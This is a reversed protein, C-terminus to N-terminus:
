KGFARPNGPGGEQPGAPKGQGTTQPVSTQATSDSPTRPDLNLGIILALALVIGIAGIGVGAILIWAGSPPKMGGFSTDSEAMAGDGSQQLDFVL